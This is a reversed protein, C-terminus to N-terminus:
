TPLWRESGAIWDYMKMGIGYYIQQGRSFCPVVFELPRTLHPANRLMTRREHLSHGVFRFQKFDLSTVAEQLYRVGGHAM